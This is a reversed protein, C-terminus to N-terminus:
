GGLEKFSKGGNEAILERLEANKAHDYATFETGTQGFM